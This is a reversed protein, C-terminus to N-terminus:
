IFAEALKGMQEAGTISGVAKKWGVSDVLTKYVFSYALSAREVSVSGRSQLVARMLFPVHDLATMHMAFPISTSHRTFQNYLSAVKQPSAGTEVLALIGERTRAEFAVKDASAEYARLVSLPNVEASNQMRLILHVQLTSIAEQDKLSKGQSR